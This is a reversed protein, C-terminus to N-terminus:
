GNRRLPYSTVWCTLLRRRNRFLADFPLLASDFRKEGMNPKDEQGFRPRTRCSNTRLRGMEASSDRLETASTAITLIAAITKSENV